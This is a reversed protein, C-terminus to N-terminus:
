ESRLADLWIELHEIMSVANAITEEVEVSKDEMVKDIATKAHKNLLENKTETM